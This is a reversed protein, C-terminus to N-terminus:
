LASKAVHIKRKLIVIPASSSWYSFSTYEHHTRQLISDLCSQIKSVNYGSSDIISIEEIQARELLTVTKEKKDVSITNLYTGLCVKIEILHHKAMFKNGFAKAKQERNADFILSTYECSEQWSFLKLWSLPNNYPYIEFDILGSAEIPRFLFRHSTGSRSSSLICDEPQELDIRLMKGISQWPPSERLCMDFYYEDNTVSDSHIIKGIFHYEPHMKVVCNFLTKSAAMVQIKEKTSLQELMPQLVENPLREIPSLLGHNKIQSNVDFLM